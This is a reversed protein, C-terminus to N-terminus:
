YNDPIQTIVDFLFKNKAIMYQRKSYCNDYKLREYRQLLESHDILYRHLKIDVEAEHEKLLIIEVELNEITSNVRAYHEERNELSGYIKVLKDLVQQWDSTKPYVGVEIEGKGAIKFATSGRILYKIQFDKFQDKFQNILFRAIRTQKSSFPRIHVPTTRYKLFYSDDFKTLGRM